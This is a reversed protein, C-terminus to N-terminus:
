RIQLRCVIDQVSFPWNLYHGQCYLVPIHTCFQDLLNEDNTIDVFYFDIGAEILQKKAEDCLHCDETGYLMITTSDEIEKSPNSM